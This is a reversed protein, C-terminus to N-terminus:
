IQHQQRQYGVGIGVSFRPDTKFPFDLMIYVNVSHSFGKIHITDPVPAWGDYGLQVMFHDNARNNAKSQELREEKQRYFGNKCPKHLSM